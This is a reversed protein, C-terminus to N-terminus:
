PLIHADIGPQLVIDEMQRCSVEKTQTNEEWGEGARETINNPYVTSLLKRPVQDHPSSSVQGDLIM